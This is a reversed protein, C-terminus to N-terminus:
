REMIETRELKLKAGTGNYIGSYLVNLRASKRTLGWALSYELVTALIDRRTIAAQNGVLNLPKDAREPLYREALSKRWV